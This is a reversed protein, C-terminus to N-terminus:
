IIIDADNSCSLNNFLNLRTPPIVNVPPCVGPVGIFMSPCHTVQRLSDKMLGTSIDYAGELMAKAAVTVGNNLTLNLTLISDCGAANQTTYTYTGAMTYTVGNTWTFSNCAVQNLTSSTAYTITLDLTATNVCGGSNMTTYTYIGSVTYTSGNWTYSNCQVTTSGGDFTSYNVTLNLTSTHLCGSANISTSTYVGSTTYTM